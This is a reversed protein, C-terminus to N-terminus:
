TYFDGGLVFISAQLFVLGRLNNKNYVIKKDIEIHLVSTDRKVGKSM